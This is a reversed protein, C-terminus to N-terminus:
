DSLRRERKEAPDAAVSVAEQKRIFIKREPGFVADALPIQIDVSIDSGRRARGGAGGGAFFDEFIDGLDFGFGTGGANTFNGFDFNSEFGGGGTGAGSFVNGYTDYEKRKKEDSLISYAENLEKFKETDGGKDPHYKHALKRFARKVDEPSAGKDIGLVAYYDKKKQM